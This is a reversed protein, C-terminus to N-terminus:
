HADDDVLVGTVHHGVPHQGAVREEDTVDPAGVQEGGDAKGAVLEGLLEVVAEVGLQQREGSAM